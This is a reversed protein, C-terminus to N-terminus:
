LTLNSGSRDIIQQAESPWEHNEIQKNNSQTVNYDPWTTPRFASLGFAYWNDTLSNDHANLDGGMFTSILIWSSCYGFTDEYSNSVVNNKVSFGASGNDLYIYSYDNIQAALYNESIESDRQAGLTYIGGGDNMTQMFTHLRNGKILNNQCVSTANVDPYGWGWGMSIGSYPLNYLTNNLLSIYRAYGVFIGPTSHYEAGIETIVNNKVTVREVIRREDSPHHDYHVGPVDPNRPDSGQIDAVSVAAGSIDSFRNSEISIDKSGYVVALANIGLGKFTNGEFTVNRAASLQVSGPTKYMDFWGAGSQIVGAQHEIYGMTDVESWADYAFTIGRFVLNQVPNELTGEIRVLGETVPVIVESSRLKEDAQPKYYIKGTTRNYYWENEQDLLEMANEVWRLESVSYAATATAAAWQEQTTRIMTDSVNDVGLRFMKWSNYSVLEVDQVNEWNRMNSFECGEAISFGIASKALGNAGVSRARIKREGDIFLNRIPLDPELQAEYLGNRFRWDSVIRGGSLVPKENPYNMWYTKKGEPASDEQSLVFSEELYYYGGRLYVRIDRQEEARIDRVFTRAEELTRFPSEESGDGGTAADASVFINRTTTDLTEPPTPPDEGQGCGVAMGACTMAVAAAVLTCIWKKM